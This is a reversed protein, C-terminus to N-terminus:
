VYCSFWILWSQNKWLQNKSNKLTLAFYARKHKRATIEKAVSM